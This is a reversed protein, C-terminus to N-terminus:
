KRQGDQEILRGGKTYDRLVNYVIRKEIEIAREGATIIGNKYKPKQKETLRIESM